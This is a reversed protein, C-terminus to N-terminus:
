SEKEAERVTKTLYRIVEVPYEGVATENTVMVASAGDAVAHFIDSVEARTPYPHHVMSALLETVVLFPKGEERCLRALQKQAGPLEWLPMDNGLDGRAIVLMDADPLINKIQRIGERNEIKAFVRLHGMGSELLRSKVEALHKQETVFPQMLATVGYAGALRINERDQDTLVPMAVSKGVLKLSKRKQLIGGRLVVATVAPSVATVALEIKGDDLLVHDGAELVDLVRDAVPVVRRDPKAQAAEMPCLLFLEESGSLHLPASLEGIRIEPGQMDILLEPRVGARQAAKHFSQILPESEKLGTHSLNLRMGTMGELFMRELVDAQACAPGLTGFIETM